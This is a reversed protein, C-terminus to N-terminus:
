PAPLLPALANMVRDLVGAEEAALRAAAAGMRALGPPDNLLSTIEAALAEPGALQRSAGAAVLRLAIDAFNQMLPGFLVAAGLRAPELPNQGGGPPLFSKGMVVLPALRCVLGLEGLTDCLWIAADPDQGAARRAAGPLTGALAAGREPHRPVIITLLDAFRERAARDAAAALAEDGEHTSAMAWVPRGAVLTRLRALEDADAPLPPAAWKLNGPVAPDRAGLRALREADGASQALVLRFGGLMQRALGPLRAWRQASARSMRANLLATAISRRQLEALLNPWLESEVFLALDPRWHDLFRRAWAPRDLPLFQHVIGPSEPLLGSREPSAAAGGLRAALLRASTATGSTLLLALDPRAQRLARILPLVSQMEGVSAGHLWVLRGAPRAIGAIGRREALRAPFEKGRGARHRLWLPVVPGAASAAVKWVAGALSM